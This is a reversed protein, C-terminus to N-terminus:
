LSHSTCSDHANCQNLMFHLFLTIEIKQCGEMNVCKSDHLHPKDGDASYQVMGWEYLLRSAIFKVVLGTSIYLYIYISLYISLYIYISSDSIKKNQANLMERLLFGCHGVNAAVAVPHLNWSATIANWPNKNSETHCYQLNWSIWQLWKSCFWLSTVTHLRHSQSSIHVHM